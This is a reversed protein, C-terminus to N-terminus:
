SKESVNGVGNSLFHTLTCVIDKHKYSAFVRSFFHLIEIDIERFLSHATIFKKFIKIKIRNYKNVFTLVHGKLVRDGGVRIWILSFLKNKVDHMM